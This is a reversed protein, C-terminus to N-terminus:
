TNNTRRSFIVLTLEHTNSRTNIGDATRSAIAHLTCVTTHLSYHASKRLRCSVFTPFNFVYVRNTQNNRGRVYWNTLSHLSLPLIISSDLLPFLQFTLLWLRISTNDWYKCSHSVFVRFNKTM